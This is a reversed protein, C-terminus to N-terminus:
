TGASQGYSIGTIVVEDVCDAAILPPVCLLFIIITFLFKM